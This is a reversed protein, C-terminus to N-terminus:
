SLQIYRRLARINLKAPIKKFIELRQCLRCQLANSPIRPCFPKEHVHHWDKSNWQYYKSSLPNKELMSHDLQFLSKSVGVM